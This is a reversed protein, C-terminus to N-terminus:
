TSCSAGGNKDAPNLPTLSARFKKVGCAQFSNM